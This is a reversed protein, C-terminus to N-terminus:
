KVNKSYTSVLKSKKNTSILIGRDTNIVILNKCDIVVIPINTDNWVYNNNSEIEHTNKGISTNIKGLASLTEYTGIDNWYFRAKVVM